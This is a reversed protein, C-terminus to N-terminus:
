CIGFHCCCGFRGGEWGCEGSTGRLSFGAVWVEGFVVVVLSGVGFQAEVDVVESM